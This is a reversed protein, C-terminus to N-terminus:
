PFMILTLNVFWLNFTTLDNENNFALIGRSIIGKNVYKGSKTSEHVDLRFVTWFVHSIVFSYVVYIGCSDLKNLLCNTPKKLEGISNNLVYM